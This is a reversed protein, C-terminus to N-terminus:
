LAHMYTIHLALMRWSFSARDVKIGAPCPCETHAEEQLVQCYCAEKNKNTRKSVLNVINVVGAKFRNLLEPQGQSM